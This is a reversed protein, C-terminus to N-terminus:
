NELSRPLLRDILDRLEELRPQLIHREKEYLERIENFYEYRAIKERLSTLPPDTGDNLLSGVFLISLDLNRHIPLEESQRSWRNNSIRWVKLSLDDQDYQARGISLAMADTNNDLESVNRFRGDLQDYDDVVVIPQHSLHM